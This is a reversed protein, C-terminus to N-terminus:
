LIGRNEFAQRVKNAASRGYLRQAAAVTSSALEPMALAFTCDLPHIFRKADADEGDLPVEPLM